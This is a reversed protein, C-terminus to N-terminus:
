SDESPVMSRELDDVCEALADPGRRAVVQRLWALDGVTVQIHGAPLDRAFPDQVAHIWKNVLESWLVLEVVPGVSTAFMVRTPLDVEFDHGKMSVNVSWGRTM